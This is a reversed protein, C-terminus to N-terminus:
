GGGKNEGRESVGSGRGEKGAGSEKEVVGEV